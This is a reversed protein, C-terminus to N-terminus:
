PSSRDAIVASRLRELADPQLRLVEDWTPTLPHHTNGQVFRQGAEFLSTAFCSVALSEAGRDITLGNIAADAAYSDLLDLVIRQYASVITRVLGQDLVQGQSALGSFLSFAIDRGMRALGRDGQGTELPQHKHDYREAIDVQCLQRTSHDRFVETLIGIELGWDSPLHLRQAAEMRLACEGALPYRFSNLFELYRNPPLCRMLARLLPTVFLRNVRGYMLGGESIRAYYAKAFVVNATPHVVPYVLRALSRPEFTLVDCDHLAVVQGVGSAQALGLCLWINHGKGRDAPALGRAALDAVLASVRPGDNWIVHHPQPLRSFYSLAHRYGEGDALDLGVIIEALWPLEALSRVIPDLAPGQLESYLCPLVLTIPRKAAYRAVEAILDAAPRQGIEHLSTVIGNQFFDSM